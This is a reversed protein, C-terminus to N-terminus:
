RCFHKLQLRYSLFFLEKFSNIVTKIAKKEYTKYYRSRGEMNKTDTHTPVRTLRKTLNQILTRWPLAEWKAFSFASSYVVM